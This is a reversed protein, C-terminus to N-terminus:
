EVPLQQKARMRERLLWLGGGVVILLVTGAVAGGYEGAVVSEGLLILGLGYIMSVGWSVIIYPLFPVALMGLLYSKAGVPGPAIRVLFIFLWSGERRWKEEARYRRTEDPKIRRRLIRALCYALSLGILMAIGTILLCGWTGFAAGGLLFFPSVPFLLLPLLITAAAFSVAGVEALEEAIGAADYGQTRFYAYSAVGVLLILVFSGIYWKPWRSSGLWEGFEKVTMKNM